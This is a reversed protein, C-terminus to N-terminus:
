NINIKKFFSLNLVFIGFLLIIFLFSFFINYTYLYFFFILSLSGFCLVFFYHYLFGTQLKSFSTSLFFFFRVIGLLGLNEIVGRDIIKFTYEYGIFLIFYVIIKNYIIDFFWKKNFFIFVNKLLKNKYSLTLNFIKLSFTLSYTYFFVSLIIGLFSFILPLIKIYTPLFESSELFFNSFIFSNLWFGNGFGIFLDKSIFGIFITFFSLIFLPFWLFFNGEHVNFFIKKSGKYESLFTLVLLRFSYFSTFFAAIAALIYCFFSDFNYKYCITELIIDKSFFGTLYPFGALAISGVFMTVFTFPLLYFLGGMKRMDQEDNLGHIVVGAGLFLLAKFFAHNYLHFMAVSYNSSGCAIFMYGLQSCTSYAIVKKLDNQFLGTTSAFLATLGGFLTILTLNFESYELIFTSRLILFIGATVMTAAHILASVPTPGEMADPLWTHLGVQASKGVAALFLFFSIFSMLNYNNNNLNFSLFEFDESVSYLVLFDFTKFCFFILILSLLFFFDGVRNVIIAKMASKNAQERTFWFNVLLYSCLGVGEWGLFFQVYNGSTVLILMFFTFLSLYSIFRIFHPDQEMYSISYFHVLLSIFTVVFLMTVTLTDFYFCWDLNFINLNFWSILPIICFYGFFGVEIFCFISCIVSLFMCMLAIITIGNKGILRGFCSLTLFSIFPFFLVLLYM